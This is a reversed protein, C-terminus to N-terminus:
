HLLDSLVISVGAWNALPGVGGGSDVSWGNGNGSLSGSWDGGFYNGFNVSFFTEGRTFTIPAPNTTTQVVGAPLVEVVQYAVAPNLSSTLNNFSYTGDAATTTQAILTGSPDLLQIVRGAVGGEGFDRVGNHNADNFVTGRIQMRFFFVNAQLDHNVTNRSIIQELTTHELLSLATGDYQNEFWLRDGDRLRQFQNSVIRTFLPGVSGGPVHDEALGGVWLDINNVSGYLSQLQTALTHNSTIQDFSTVRPLGYYARVTNYDALGHDRGRQINLSALDFGGAGPPGFLFNQLEPVIKNDVEQANDTALYKLIPDAGNAELVPPNFFANSLKVPAFKMSGDPNLFQVDPALLSHGLRFAATSFENAIGPNVWPRYGTYDPVVNSGLLAPLFENFTISQVEAIVIARAAQYVAEDSMAPNNAHILDALRNHERLFLTHVSTLEINENARVDGAMFLQDDPVIGSGNAISFAANADNPDLSINPFYTHNNLPLMMSGDSGTSFKLRGPHAPDKARLADAVTPDDGYIMSGDIFATIDNPQQRPNRTSTGTAPDYESRNFFILGPGPPNYATSFPDTPNNPVVVNAPQLQSGSGDSTLDIDHDIFQGWAYVWDSMLRNNPLNGDTPDTVILDSIARASPRGAGALSSVGDGYQAPATRLLDQGVSGWDPHFPNNGSGDISYYISASPVCRDELAEPRPAAPRPLGVRPLGARRRLARIRTPLLRM